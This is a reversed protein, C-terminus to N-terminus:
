EHLSTPSGIICIRAIRRAVKSSGFHSKAYAMYRRLAVSQQLNKRDIKCFQSKAAKRLRFHPKALGMNRSQSKAVKRSQSKAVDLFFRVVKKSKARSIKRSQSM